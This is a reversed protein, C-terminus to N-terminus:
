NIGILVQDDPLNMRKIANGYMYSVRIQAGDCYLGNELYPTEWTLSFVRM